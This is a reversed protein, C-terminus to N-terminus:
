MNVKGGNEACASLSQAEDPSSWLVRTAPSTELRPLQVAQPFSQSRPHIKGVRFGKPDKSKTSYAQM